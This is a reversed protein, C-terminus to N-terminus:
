KTSFIIFAEEQYAWLGVNILENVMLQVKWSKYDRKDYGTPHSLEWTTYIAKWKNAIEEAKQIKESITLSAFKKEKFTEM